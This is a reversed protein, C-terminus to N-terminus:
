ILYQAMNNTSYRHCTLKFIIPISMCLSNGPKEVHQGTGQRVQLGYALIQNVKAQVHDLNPKV